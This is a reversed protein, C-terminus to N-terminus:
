NKEDNERKLLMLEARKIQLEKEVMRKDHELDSIQMKLRELKEM